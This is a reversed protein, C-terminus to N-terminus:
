PVRVRAGLAAKSERRLYSPLTLSSALPLLLMTARERQRQRRRKLFPAVSQQYLTISFKLVYGSVRSRSFALDSLFFPVTKTM